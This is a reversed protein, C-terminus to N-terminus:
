ASKEKDSRLLIVGEPIDSSAASAKETYVARFDMKNFDWRNLINHQIEGERVKLPKILVEKDLKMQFDQEIVVLCDVENSIAKAFSLSKMSAGTEDKSQTSAVIPCGKDLALRHMDRWINLTGKWDDEDDEDTLLYAGDVFVIEPKFEDIKAAVGAVGSTAQEVDLVYESDKLNDLFKKYKKEEISTLQGISFRSYDFGNWIADIRKMINHVHMESTIFLVKHGMKALHVAEICLLWTKGIGTYAMYTTLTKEGYGHTMKNLDPFFSPLGVVGGKNKLDDYLQKRLDTSETLSMYDRRIVESDIERIMKRITKMAADPDKEELLPTIEELMTVITNQQRKHRLEDCIYAFPEGSGYRKTTPNVYMPVDPFKKRFALMTPSSGYRKVCSIIFQYARRYKGSLFKPTIGANMAENVAKKMILDTIFVQETNYSM